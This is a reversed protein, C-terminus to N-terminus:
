LTLTAFLFIFSFFLFGVLSVLCFLLTGAATDSLEPVTHFDLHGDQAGTGLLGVTKTSTFCCKLWRYRCVRLVKLNVVVQVVAQIPRCWSLRSNWLIYLHGFFCFCFLFVLLGLLIGPYRCVRFVYLNVVVQM